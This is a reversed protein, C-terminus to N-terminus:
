EVFLFNVESFLSFTRAENTGRGDVKNANLRYAHNLLKRRLPHPQIKAQTSM